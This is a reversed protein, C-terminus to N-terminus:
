EEWLGGFAEGADTVGAVGGGFAAADVADAGAVGDSVAYVSSSQRSNLGSLGFGKERGDGL